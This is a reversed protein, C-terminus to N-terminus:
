PDPETGSAPVPPMVSASDNVAADQAPSLGFAFSVAALVPAVLAAAGTVAFLVYFVRVAPAIPGHIYLDQITDTGTRAADYVYNSFLFYAALVEAALALLCVGSIKAASSFTMAVM